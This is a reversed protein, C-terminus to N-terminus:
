GHKVGKHLDVRGGAEWGANVAESSKLKPHRAKSKSRVWQSIHEEIEAELQQRHQYIVLGTGSSAPSSDEVLERCRAWIRQSAVYKFEKRYRAREAQTLNKPLAAKYLQEVQLIVFALTDQAASINDARGVYLFKSTGRTLTRVGYLAACAQACCLQWRHDFEHDEGTITRPKSDAAKLQDQEIGHKMMLQHALELARTSENENAQGEALALLKRIKDHITTM